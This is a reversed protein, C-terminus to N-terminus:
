INNMSKEFLIGRSVYSKLCVISYNRIYKIEFPYLFTHRPYVNSKLFITAIISDFYIYLYVYRLMFDTKRNYILHPTVCSVNYGGSVYRCTSWIPTSTRM